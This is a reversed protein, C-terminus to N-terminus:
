LEKRLERKAKIIMQGDHIFQSCKRSYHLDTPQESICGQHQEKSVRFCLSASLSLYCGVGKKLLQWLM